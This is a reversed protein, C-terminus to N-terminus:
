SQKSTAATAGPICTQAEDAVDSMQSVARQMTAMREIKYRRSYAAMLKWRGFFFFSMRM